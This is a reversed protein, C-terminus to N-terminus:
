GGGEKECFASLFAVADLWSTKDTEDLAIPHGTANQAAIFRELRGHLEQATNRVHHHLRKVVDPNKTYALLWHIHPLCIVGPRELAMQLEPEDHFDVFTSGYRHLIDDAQICGPCAASPVPMRSSPCSQSEALMSLVAKHLLATGLADGFSLLIRAHEPCYGLSATLAAQTKPDNVYEYLLSDFYQRVGFKVLRCLACGPARFADSLNFYTSFKEKM